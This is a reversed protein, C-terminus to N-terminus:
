YMNLNQNRYFNTAKVKTIVFKIEFRKTFDENKRLEMIAKKLHHYSPMVAVVTDIHKGSGLINEAFKNLESIFEPTSYNISSQVTPM